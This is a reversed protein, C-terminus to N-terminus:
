RGLLSRAFLALPLCPVSVSRKHGWYSGSDSRHRLRGPHALFLSMCRPLRRLHDRAIRDGRRGPRAPHALHPRASQRDQCQNSARIQNGSRGTPRGAERGKLIRATHIGARRYADALSNGYSVLGDVGAMQRNSYMAPVAHRAALAVIQERRNQLFADAAVVLAGIRDRVITAFATDIESPAAANLIFIQLGLSSAAEQLQAPWSATEANNPNLLLAVTKANPVLDHLLALRKPGLEANFWTVRGQRPGGPRHGARPKGAGSRRRTGAHALATGQRACRGGPAPEGRCRHPQRGAPQGWSATPNV